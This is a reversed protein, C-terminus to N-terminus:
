LRSLCLLPLELNLPCHKGHLLPRTIFVGAGGTAMAIDPVTLEGAMRLATSGACNFVVKILM